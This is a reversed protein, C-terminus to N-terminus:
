CSAYSASATTSSSTRTHESGSTSCTGSHSGTFFASLNYDDGTDMRRIRESWPVPDGPYVDASFLERSIDYFKM